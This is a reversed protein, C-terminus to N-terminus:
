FLSLYILFCNAKLMKVVVFPIYVYNVECKVCYIEVPTTQIYLYEKSSQNFSSFFVCLSSSKAHQFEFFNIQIMINM